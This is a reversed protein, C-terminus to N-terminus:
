VIILTAADPDVEDITIDVITILTAADPDVLILTSM